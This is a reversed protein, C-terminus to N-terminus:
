EFFLVTGAGGSFGNLKQATTSFAEPPVLSCLAAATIEWLKEHAGDFLIVVRSSQSNFASPSVRVSHKIAAEVHSRPHDLSRGIFYRSRRKAYLFEPNSIM